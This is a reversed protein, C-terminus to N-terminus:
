RRVGMVISKISVDQNHGSLEWRLGDHYMNPDIGNIQYVNLVDRLLHPNVALGDNAIDAVNQIFQREFIDIALKRECAEFEFKILKGDNDMFRSLILWDDEGVHIGYEDWEVMVLSFGNAVYFRGFRVFIKEYLTSNVINKMYKPPKSLKVLEECTRLQKTDFAM